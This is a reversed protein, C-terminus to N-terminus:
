KGTFSCQVDGYKRKAYDTIYCLSGNVGVWDPEYADCELPKPPSVFQMIEPSMVDLSPHQCALGDKGTFMQANETFIIKEIQSRQLTRDRTIVYESRMQLYSSRFFLIVYYLLLIIVSISALRRLSCRASIVGMVSTVLCDNQRSTSQTGRVKHAKLASAM